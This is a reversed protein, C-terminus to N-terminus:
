FPIYSRGKGYKGRGVRLNHLERKEQAERRHRSKLRRITERLRQRRRKSKTRGSALRFGTLGGVKGVASFFDLHEYEMVFRIANGHAGCGFCHFFQKQTTVTFSPTKETHFPCLAIWEDSSRGRRKLSDGLYHRIVDLIDIRSLLRDIASKSYM